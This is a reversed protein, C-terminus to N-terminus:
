PSPTLALISVTFALRLLKRNVHIMNPDDPILLSRGFYRTIFNQCRTNLQYATYEDATWIASAVPPQLQPKRRVVLPRATGAAVPQLDPVNSAFNCIVGFSSCRNCHPKDEDCKSVFPVYKTICCDLFASDRVKLKRLKCNRCGFRSRRPTKRDRVRDEGPFNSAMSPQDRLAKRPKGIFSKGLKPISEIGRLLLHFM